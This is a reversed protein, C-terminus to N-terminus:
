IEASHLKWPEYPWRRLPKGNGAKAAGNMRKRKRLPKIIMDSKPKQTLRKKEIKVLKEKAKRSNGEAVAKISYCWAYATDVGKETKKRGKETKETKRNRPVGTKRNGGRENWHTEGKKECVQGHTGYM